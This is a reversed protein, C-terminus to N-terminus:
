LTCADASLSLESHRNVDNSLRTRQGGPFAVRWLQSATGTELAQAVLLTKDDLWGLGLPIDGRVHVLRSEGNTVEFVRIGIDRVDEGLRQFMAIRRGDPSWSPAIVTGGPMGTAFVVNAAIARAGQGKPN